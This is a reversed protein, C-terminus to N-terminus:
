LDTPSNCTIEEFVWGSHPKKSRLKNKLTRKDISFYSYVQRLSEFVLAKSSGANTARVGRPPTFIVPKHVTPWDKSCKMRFVYNQCSKPTVGRLVNLIRDESVATQRILESMTSAEVVTGTRLCLAQYPGKLRLSTAREPKTHYWERLDGTLRIEYRNKFLTPIVENGTNRSLKKSRSTLGIECLARGISLHTKIEGTLVDRVECQQNDRRLGTGVAHTNNERSSVWELNKLGYNLKDGDKHNIFCRYGPDTNRIFARALLIHISVSRWRCKDPDYVNVYPYGYPGIASKLIRQTKISKVVGLENILFRTFGPIIRFGEGFEISPWVVM